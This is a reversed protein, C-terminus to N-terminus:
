RALGRYVEVHRRGERSESTKVKRPHLEGRSEKSRLVGRRSSLLVIEPAIYTAYTKFGVSYLKIIKQFFFMQVINCRNALDVVSKSPFETIRYNQSTAYPKHM